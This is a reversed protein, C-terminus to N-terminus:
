RLVVSLTHVLISRAQAPRMQTRSDYCLYQGTMEKVHPQNHAALECSRIPPTMTFNGHWSDQTKILASAHQCAKRPICCEKLTMYQIGKWAPATGESTACVHCSCGTKVLSVASQSQLSGAAQMHVRCPSKARQPWSVPLEKHNAALSKHGQIENVSCIQLEHKPTRLQM